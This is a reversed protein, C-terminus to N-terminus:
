LAHEGGQRHIGIRFPILQGDCTALLVHSIIRGKRIESEILQPVLGPLCEWQGGVAFCTRGDLVAVHYTAGMCCRVWEPDIRRNPHM